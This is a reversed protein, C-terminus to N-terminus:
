PFFAVASSIILDMTSCLKLPLDVEACHRARRSGGGGGERGGVRQRRSRVEEQKKHREAATSPSVRPFSHACGLRIWAGAPRPSRMWFPSPCPRALAPAVFGCVSAESFSRPSSTCIAAQTQGGRAFPHPICGRARVASTSSLCAVRPESDGAHRHPRVVRPPVTRRSATSLPRSTPAPPDKRPSDRCFPANPGGVSCLSLTWPVRQIAASPGPKPKAGARSRAVGTEERAADRASRSRVTVGAALAVFPFISCAVRPPSPLPLSAPRVFSAPLTPSPLARRQSRGSGPHAISSRRFFSSARPPCPALPAVLRPHSLAVLRSRWPTPACPPSPAALCPRSSALAHRPSLTVLHPRSLTRRSAIFHVRREGDKGQRERAEGAM